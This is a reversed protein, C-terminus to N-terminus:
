SVRRRSIHAIEEDVREQVIAPLHEDLWARLTPELIERVLDELNRNATPLVPSQRDVKNEKKAAALRDFAEAAAVTAIPEHEASPVASSHEAGAPAAAEVAPTTQEAHAEAAAELANFASAPASHPEAEATPEWISAKAPEPEVKQTLVLEDEAPAAAPEDAVIKRISALIEDMSPEDAHSDPM